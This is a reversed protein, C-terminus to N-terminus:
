IKMHESILNLILNKKINESLKKELNVTLDKFRNLYKLNEYAKEYNANKIYFNLYGLAKFEKSYLCDNEKILDVTPNHWLFMIPSMEKFNSLIVNNFFRNLFFNGFYRKPLDKHIREILELKIKEFENNIEIETFIRINKKNVKNLINLMFDDKFNFTIKEFNSLIEKYDKNYKLVNEVNNTKNLKKILENFILM